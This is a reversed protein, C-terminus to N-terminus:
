KDITQPKGYKKAERTNAKRFSIVRIAGQVPTFCLIHLRNDLYGVAVFRPEPYDKRSDPIIHAEGWEFEEARDFSLNRNIANMESKVPDFVIKM